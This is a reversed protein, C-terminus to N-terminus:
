RDVRGFTAAEFVDFEGAADLLAQVVAPQNRYRALMLASVGQENRASALAPQAAILERVRAVDAKQLAEFLAATQDMARRGDACSVLVPVCGGAACAEWNQM